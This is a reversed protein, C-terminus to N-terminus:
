REIEAGDANQFVEVDLNGIALKKDKESRGTAALGRQEVANGAQEFDGVPCIKMLPLFTVQSSGLSRPMPM